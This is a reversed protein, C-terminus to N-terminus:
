ALEEELLQSKEHLVVDRLAPKLSAYHFYFGQNEIKKSSVRQSNCLLSSRDGLLLKLVPIPIAPLIIPKGLLVALERTLKSNCVPNPAVGNYVGDLRNDICFLYMAAIDRIHIWSVWQEGTGIVAGLCKATMARMERLAGGTDSLVMGTRIIAVPFKHHARLKHAKKEWSQVVKGLFDKSHVQEDEQYYNTLSHPYIGIASASVFTKIQNDEPISKDLLEVSEKRSKFIRKKRFLTWPKAINEGALNIVADVQSFCNLDIEKKAPNWYFGKYNGDNCLNSKNTTLYHVVDGRQHCLETIRQGIMGSAGAILIKM